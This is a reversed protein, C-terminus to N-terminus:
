AMRQSFCDPDEREGCLLHSTTITIIAMEDQSTIFIKGELERHRLDRALGM